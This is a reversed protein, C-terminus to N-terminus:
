MIIRRNEWEWKKQLKLWVQVKVLSEFTLELEALTEKLSDFASELQDAFHDGFGRNLGLFVTDGAVVASSYSFATPIRKIGSM